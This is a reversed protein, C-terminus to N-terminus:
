WRKEIEISIIAVGDVTRTVARMQTGMEASLSRLAPGLVQEAFDSMTRMKGDDAIDVALRAADVIPRSLCSGDTHM